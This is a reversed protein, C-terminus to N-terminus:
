SPPVAALAEPLNLLEISIFSGCQGEPPSAALGGIRESAERALQALASLGGGEAQESFKMLEASWHGACGEGAPDALMTEMALSELREELSSVVLSTNLM